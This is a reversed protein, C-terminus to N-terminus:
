AELTEVLACEHDGMLDSQIKKGRVFKLAALAKERKIHLYPLMKLLFIECDERKGLQWQWMPAHHDPRSEGALPYVKGGYEKQLTLLMGLETNGLTAQVRTHQNGLGPVNISGEGDFFGAFYANILNNKFPLDQMETTVSSRENLGQLKDYLEQRRQPVQQRYLSYFEMLLRAQDKKIVLYPVIQSIFTSSHKYSDTSWDWSDKVSLGGPKHYYVTGGFHHVIWKFVPKFTNRYRVTPDYLRHGLSTHICTTICFTGEADMAGAMYAKTKEKM